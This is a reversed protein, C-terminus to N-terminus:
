AGAVFSPFSEDNLRKIKENYDKVAYLSHVTYCMLFYPLTFILPIFFLSIVIWGALSFVLFIFDMLSTKSIVTSMHLAEDVDMNEDMIVLAPALYFKIVSVTVLASGLSSLFNVLYSLNQSWMPIPINIFEYFDPNSIIYVAFAPLYFILAFLLVRILLMFSLKMAKNYRSLKSFYYFAAAPAEDANGYLRWYYRMIGLALPSLIVFLLLYMIATAAINGIVGGFLYATYQIILYSFLLTLASIIAMVWKGKIASKADSKLSSISLSM